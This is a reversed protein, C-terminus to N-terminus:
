RDPRTRVHILVLFGSLGAMVLTHCRYRGAAEGRGPRDSLKLLREAYLVGGPLRDGVSVEALVLVLGTLRVHERVVLGPPYCGFM